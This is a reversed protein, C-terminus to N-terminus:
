SGAQVSDDIRVFLQCGAEHPDRPTLGEISIGDLRDAVGQSMGLHLGCITDADAAAAEAFPCADLVIELDSGHAVGVPEFGGRAIAALLRDVASSGEPAGVEIRNGARRGVEVADDGTALMELLLMTLRQYPGDVDWRSDASPDLSYLLKPRGRGEAKATSEVVLGVEVLKALHQRIANHSVGVSDTLAGVTVPDEAHAVLRFIRYRTPDGLARAQQQIAAESM